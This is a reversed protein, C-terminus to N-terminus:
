PCQRRTDYHRMCCKLMAVDACRMRKAKVNKCRANIMSKEQEAALTAIHRKLTHNIASAKEANLSIDEICGAASKQIPKRLSNFAYPSLSSLKLLRISFKLAVKLPILSLNNRDEPARHEGSM